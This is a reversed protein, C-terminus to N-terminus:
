PRSLLTDIGVSVKNRLGRSEKWIFGEASPDHCGKPRPPKMQEAVLLQTKQDTKSPISLVRVCDIPRLNDQGKATQYHNFM